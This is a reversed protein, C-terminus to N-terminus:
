EMMICENMHISDDDDLYGIKYGIKEMQIGLGCEMKLGM